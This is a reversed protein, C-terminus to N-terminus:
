GVRGFGLATAVLVIAADLLLAMVLTGALLVDHAGTKLSITSIKVSGGRTGAPFCITLRVGRAGDQM